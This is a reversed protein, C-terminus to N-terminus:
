RDPEDLTTLGERLAYLAAQTRNNLQLKAFIESLRNRVTKESIGLTDAITQNSAGKAVLRLIDTERETLHELAGDRPTSQVRRFEDLVREAMTADLLVEGEHVRRIASVLEEASESKLIYGRAGAKVAEFVYRPQPYMTLFVVRSNPDEELLAQTAKVGDLDPMQIDMVTVDPRIEAALRIAERGTAAEGVVKLDPESEFISRLGQRFMGHDDALLIRIM